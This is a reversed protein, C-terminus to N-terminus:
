TWLVRPLSRYFISNFRNNLLEPKTLKHNTQGVAAGVIVVVVGTCAWFIVLQNKKGYYKNNKFKVRKKIIFFAVLFSILALFLKLPLRTKGAIM